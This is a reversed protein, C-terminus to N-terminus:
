SGCRKLSPNASLQTSQRSIRRRVNGPVQLMLSFFEALVRFTLIFVDFSSQSSDEFKSSQEDYLRKQGLDVLFNDACFLPVVMFIDVSRKLEMRWFDDLRREKSTSGEKGVEAGGAGDVLGGDADAERGGGGGGSSGAGAGGSNGGHLFVSKTNPNYVVQHAFRPAPMESPSRDPEHLIEM